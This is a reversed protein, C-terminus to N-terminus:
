RQGKATEFAFEFEAEEGAAVEVTGKLTGYREHWAQVLYDGPPVEISWAGDEDSVSYYPNDVVAVWAKMWPHINCVLPIAVESRAFSVELDASQRPQTHNFAANSGHAPMAKVNHQTDDNNEIQITQGARAVVVHPRFVCGEQKLVVPEDPVPGADEDDIGRAVWVVVNQVEGSQKALVTETVGPGHARCGPIHQMSIPQPEPVKGLLRAVGRLTAPADEPTGEPAPTIAAEYGFLKRAHRPEPASALVEELDVTGTAEAPEGPEQEQEAAAVEPAPEPEDDGGGCAGLGLALAGLLAGLLVASRLPLALPTPLARAARAPRFPTRFAM